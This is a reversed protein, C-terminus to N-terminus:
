WSVFIVPLGTNAQGSPILSWASIEYEEDAQALVCESRAVPAGEPGGPRTNTFEASGSGPSGNRDLSDWVVSGYALTSWSSVDTDFSPNALLNQALAGPALLFSTCSILLILRM